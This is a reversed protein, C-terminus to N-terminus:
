KKLHNEYILKITYLGGIFTVYNVTRTWKPLQNLM